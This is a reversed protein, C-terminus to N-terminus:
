VSNNDYIIGHSITKTKEVELMATKAQAVVSRLWDGFVYEDIHLYGFDVGIYSAPILFEWDKKNQRYAVVPILGFAPGSPNSVARKVQSWWAQPKLAECRKIEFAFPPFIIDAGGSRVQELNREPKVDLKFKHLLYDCFEREGAAGKARVNIM